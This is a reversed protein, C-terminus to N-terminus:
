YIAKSQSLGAPHKKNIVFTKYVAEYERILEAPSKPIFQNAKYDYSVSYVKERYRTKIENCCNLCLYVTRIDLIGAQRAVEEPVIRHAALTESRCYCGCIECTERHTISDRSM